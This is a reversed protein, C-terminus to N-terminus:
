PISPNRTDLVTENFQPIKADMQKAERREEDNWAKTSSTMEASTNARLGNSNSRMHCGTMNSGNTAM